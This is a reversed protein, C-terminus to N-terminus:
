CTGLGFIPEFKLRSYSTAMPSLFLFHKRWYENNPLVLCNLCVEFFSIDPCYTYKIYM